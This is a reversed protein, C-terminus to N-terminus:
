LYTVIEFELEINWFILFLKRILGLFLRFGIVIGDNIFYRKYVKISTHSPGMHTM